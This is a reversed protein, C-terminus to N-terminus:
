WVLRPSVPTSQPSGTNGGSSLHLGSQVPRHQEQPSRANSGLPLLHGQDVTRHEPSGRSLTRCLRRSPDHGRHRTASRTPWGHQGALLEDERASTAQVLEEYLCRQTEQEKTNARKTPSGQDETPKAPVGAKDKPAAIISAGHQQQKTTSQSRRRPSRFHPRPWSCSRSRSRPSSGSRSRYTMSSESYDSDSDEQESSFWRPRPHRQTKPTTTSAPKGRPPIRKLKNNCDKAATLHAGGCLACKPVFTHGAEPNPHNCTNCAGATPNPCVHPRHRTTRCIPCFQRTPQYDRCPMEGGYFYVFRPVQPREFHLLATQSQGLMRARVIRVGHTRVRLNAM